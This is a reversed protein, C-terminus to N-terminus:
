MLGALRPLYLVLDPFLSILALVGISIFLFPLIERSIAGIRTENSTIAAGAFLCLGYPPTMLGIMLNFVMIVGFHIPNIGVATAIPTLIPGLILIAPAADMFMGWMLLFVNIILLVMLPTLRM